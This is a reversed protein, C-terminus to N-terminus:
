RWCDSDGHIMRANESCYARARPPAAASNHYWSGWGASDTLHVSLGAPRAPAITCAGDASDARSGSNRLRNLRRAIGTESAIFPPRSESCRLSERASAVPTDSCFACNDLTPVFLSTRVKLQVYKAPISCCGGNACRRVRVAGGASAGFRRCPSRPL